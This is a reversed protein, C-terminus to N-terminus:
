QNLTVWSGSAVSQEMADLAEAARIADVLTAGYAEGPQFAGFDGDRPGAFLTRVPEDAYAPGTSVGLEGMRRFDWFLAGRTGHIEFGYRDRPRRPRDPRGAPVSL